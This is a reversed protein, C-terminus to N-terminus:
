KIDHSSFACEVWTGDSQRIESVIEDRFPNCLFQLFPVKIDDGTLGQQFFPQGAQGIMSTAMKLAKPQVFARRTVAIGTWAVIVLIVTAVLVLRLSFGPLKM